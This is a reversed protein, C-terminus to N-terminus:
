VPAGRARAVSARKGGEGSCACDRTAYDHQGTHHRHKSPLKQNHREEGTDLMASEGHGQRELQEASCDKDGAVSGVDTRSGAGGM